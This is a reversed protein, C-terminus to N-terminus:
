VKKFNSLTEEILHEIEFFQNALKLVDNELSESNFNVWGQMLTLPGFDVSVNEWQPKFVKFKARFLDAFKRSEIKFGNLKRLKLAHINYLIKQEKLTADSIWVSFFIRSESSIPNEFDNAWAKKYLKLVLSDEVFNVVAVELNKKSLIKKDLQNAVKQFENQYFHANM